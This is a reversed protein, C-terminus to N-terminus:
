LDSNNLKQDYKEFFGWEKLLGAIYETGRKLKRYITQESYVGSYKLMTLKYSNGKLYRFCVIKGAYEDEVSLVVISNDIVEVVTRFKELQRIMKETIMHETVKGIGFLDIYAKMKAYNELLAKTMDVETRNVNNKM